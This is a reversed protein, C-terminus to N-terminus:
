RVDHRYVHFRGPIESVFGEEFGEEGALQWRSREIMAIMQAYRPNVQLTVWQFLCNLPDTSTNRLVGSMEASWISVVTCHGFRQDPEHRMGASRIWQLREFSKEGVCRGKGAIAARKDGFM